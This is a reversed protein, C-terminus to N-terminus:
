SLYVLQRSEGAAAGQPAEPQGVEEMPDDAHSFLWDVAREVNGGCAQSPYLFLFVFFESLSPLDPACIRNILLFHSSIKCYCLALIAQRVKLAVEAQKNTFGMAALM